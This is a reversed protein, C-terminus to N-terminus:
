RVRVSGTAAPEEFSARIADFFVGAMVDYGRDTPHLDDLGLLSLDDKMAEFVDAVVVGEASALSRIRDNFGPIVRAVADRGRLGGPRQPPITALVVAVNQSKAEQVMRRLADLARDGGRAPDPDILDNTGEMLLVVNPRHTLLV